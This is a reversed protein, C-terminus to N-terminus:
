GDALYKRFFQIALSLAGPRNPLKKRAQMFFELAPISKATAPGKAFRKM